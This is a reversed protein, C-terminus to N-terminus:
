KCLSCQSIKLTLINDNNYLYSVSITDKKITLRNKKCLEEKNGNKNTGKCWTDASRRSAVSSRCFAVQIYLGWGWLRLPPAPIVKSPLINANTSYETIDLFRPFEISMQLVFLHWRRRKQRPSSKDKCIPKGLVKPCRYPRNVNKDHGLTRHQSGM